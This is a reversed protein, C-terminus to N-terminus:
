RLKELQRSIILRMVENTGELISHVRLDRLVREVQYERLYGYGGLVQLRAQGDSRRHSKHTLSSEQPHHCGGSTFITGSSTTPVWPVPGVFGKLQM